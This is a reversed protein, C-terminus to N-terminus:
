WIYDWWECTVLDGFFQHSLEHAIVDVGSFKQTHSIDEYNDQYIMANERHIQVHDFDFNTKIFFTPLLHFTFLSLSRFNFTEFFKM